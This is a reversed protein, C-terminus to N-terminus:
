VNGLRGLRIGMLVKPVGTRFMGHKRMMRVMLAIGFLCSVVGALFFYPQYQALSAVATASLFSVGLLPILTALYHSCCAMMAVVSVGGSAAMSSNAATKKKGRLHARFLTYLTVQIGLGIALSIIWWRYESFQVRAFHWNSTLTNMGLYIGVIAFSALVGLLYARPNSFNVPQSCCESVPKLDEPDNEAIEYGASTVAAKLDEISVMAPDYWVTAKRAGIDVSAAAVGDLATFATEVRGVCSGCHMGTITFSVAPQQGGTRHFQARQNRVGNCCADIDTEPSRLADDQTVKVATSKAAMSDNQIEERM